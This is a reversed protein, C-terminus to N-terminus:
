CITVYIVKDVNNETEFFLRTKHGSRLINYSTDYQPRAGDYPRDDTRLVSTGAKITIYKQISTADTGVTQDPTFTAPVETLENVSNDNLAIQTINSNIVAFNKQSCIKM